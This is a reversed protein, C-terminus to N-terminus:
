NNGRVRSSSPLSASAQFQFSGNKTPWPTPTSASSHSWLPNVERGTEQALPEIQLGKTGGPVLKRKSTRELSEDSRQERESLWLHGSGRQDARRGAVGADAMVVDSGGWNAARALAASLSASYAGRGRRGKRSARSGTVTMGCRANMGGCRRRVEQGLETKDLPGDLAPWGTNPRESVGVDIRTALLITQRNSGGGGDLVLVYRAHFSICFKSMIDPTDNFRIPTELSKFRAWGSCIPRLHSSALLAKKLVHELRSSLYGEVYRTIDPGTWESHISAPKTLTRILGSLKTRSAYDSAVEFTFYLLHVYADWNQTDTSSQIEARFDM